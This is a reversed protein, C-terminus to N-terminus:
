HRTADLVANVHLALQKVAEVKTLAAAAQPGASTMSLQVFLGGHNWQLDVASNSAALGGDDSGIRVLDTIPRETTVLKGNLTIETTSMVVPTRAHAEVRLSWSSRDPLEYTWLCEGPGSPKKYAPQGFLAAADAQTALTCPDVDIVDVTERTTAERQCSACAIAALAVLRM